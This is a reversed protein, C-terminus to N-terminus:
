PFGSGLGLRCRSSSRYPPQGPSHDLLERLSAVAEQAQTLSSELRGLHNAIVRKRTEVDPAGLVIKIDELPMDLDRFRRIVQATAIQESGYRRYGTDVDIDAPELLGIDLYHRLM